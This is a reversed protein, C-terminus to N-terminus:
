ATARAAEDECGEQATRMQDDTLSGREFSYAPANGPQPTRTVKVGRREMCTAEAELYNADFARPNMGRSITMALVKGNRDLAEVRTHPASPWPAIFFARHQWREGGDYARIEVTKHGTASLRIRVTGRLASGSIIQEEPKGTGASFSRGTQIPEQRPPSSSPGCGGGGGGGAQAEPGYDRVVDSECRQSGAVFGYHLLTVTDNIRYRALLDTRAPHPPAERKCPSATPSPGGPSPMACHTIGFNSWLGLPTEVTGLEPDGSRHRVDDSPLHTRGLVHGKRDVAILDTGIRARWVVYFPRHNWSAGPDGVAVVVQKRGPSRLLVAATGAPATGQLWTQGPGGHVELTLPDDTPYLEAPLAWDCRGNFVPEGPATYTYRCRNVRPSGKSDPSHPTIVAVTRLRVGAGNPPSIALTQASAVAPGNLHGPPAGLRQRVVLPPVVASLTPAPPIVAPQEGADHKLSPLQAIGVVLAIVCTAAVLPALWGPRRRPARSSLEVRRHIQEVPPIGAGAVRADASRVVVDRLSDPM